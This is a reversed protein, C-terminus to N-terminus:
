IFLQLYLSFSSVSSSAIFRNFCMVHRKWKSFLFLRSLYRAEVLLYMRQFIRTTKAIACIIMRHNSLLQLQYVILGRYVTTLLRCFTSRLVIVRARQRQFPPQHHLCWFYLSYISHETRYPLYVAAFRQAAPPVSGDRM